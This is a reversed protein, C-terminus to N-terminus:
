LYIKFINEYLKLLNDLLIKRVEIQMKVNQLTYEGM